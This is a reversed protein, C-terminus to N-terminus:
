VHVGAVITLPKGADIAIIAPAAFLLSFDAEGRTVHEHQYAGAQPVYRVDTFGEARLLDGVVYQPALCISPIPLPSNHDNRAAARCRAVGRWQLPGRRDRCPRRVLSRPM